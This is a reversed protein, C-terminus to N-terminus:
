NNNLEINKKKKQVGMPRCSEFMDIFIHMFKVISFPFCLFYDEVLMKRFILFFTASPM